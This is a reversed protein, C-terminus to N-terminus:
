DLLTKDTDPLVREKEAGQNQTESQAPYWKGSESRFMAKDNLVFAITGIPFGTRELIEGRTLPGAEKLTLM